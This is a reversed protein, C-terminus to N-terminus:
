HKYVPSLKPLVFSFPTAEGDPATCLMKGKYIELVAKKGKLGAPLPDLIIKYPMRM